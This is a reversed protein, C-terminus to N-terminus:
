PGALGAKSYDTVLALRTAYAADRASRTSYAFDIDERRLLPIVLGPSAPQAENVTMSYTIFTFNAQATEVPGSSSFFFTRPLRAPPPTRLCLVAPFDASYSGFMSQFEDADSTNAVRFALQLGQIGQRQGGIWTGVTAGEPYTLSGPAVRGVSQSTTLFVKVPIALTPSLPQSLWAQTVAMTTTTADTFGLSNGSTDFMEAQYSTVVGFPVENDVANAGGVCGLNVGGRVPFTRGEATRYINMTVASGAVTSFLIQVRPSPNNDIVQTLTPAFAM